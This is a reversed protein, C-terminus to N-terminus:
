SQMPHDMEHLTATCFTATRGDCPQEDVGLAPLRLNSLM